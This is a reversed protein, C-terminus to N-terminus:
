VAALIAGAVTLAVGILWLVRTTRGRKSLRAVLEERSADALLSGPGGARARLVLADANEDYEAHAVVLVTDAARIQEVSVVLGAPVSDNEERYKDQLWRDVDGHVPLTQTRLATEVDEISVEIAGSADRVVFPVVSRESYPGFRVDYFLIPDRSLPLALCLPGNEGDLPEARGVVVVREGHQVQGAGTPKASALLGLLRRQKRAESGVTRIAAVLLALGGLVLGLVGRQVNAGPVDSADMPPETFAGVVIDVGIAVAFGGLCLLLLSWGITFGLVSPVRRDLTAREPRLRDHYVTVNSGEPFRAVLQRADNEDGIPEVFAFRESVHDVDGVRYAYHITPRYIRGRRGTTYTVLARTIRGPTAIWTQSHRAEARAAWRERLLSGLAWLALLGVGVFLLGFLVVAGVLAARVIM